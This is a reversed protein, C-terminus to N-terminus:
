EMYLGIALALSWNVTSVDTPVLLGYDKKQQRTLAGGAAHPLEWALPRIPTVAAPRCRLWLLVPDLSCRRGVGCSM